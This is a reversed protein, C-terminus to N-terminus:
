KKDGFMKQTLQRLKRTDDCPNDSAFIASVVAAGNIDTKDLLEINELNIGGIAVVPISVSDAIEKLLSTNMEQVNNKTKSGFVAGVGIYDAGDKEAKMAENVNHASTGIIKDNGLIERAKAVSIDDQGVHVGDANIEKAALPDDNVIFLINNKHCIEKLQRGLSVLTDFDTNKERLQLCTIGYPIVMDCFDALTRNKLWRSDTVAYLLLSDKKLKLNFGGYFIAKASQNSKLCYRV